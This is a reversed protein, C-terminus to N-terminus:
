FWRTIQQKLKWYWWWGINRNRVKCNNMLKIKLLIVWSTSCSKVLKINLGAPNFRTENLYNIKQNM